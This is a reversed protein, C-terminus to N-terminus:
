LCLRQPNELLGRIEKALISAHYGDIVRHDLTANLALMKAVVPRGNEPLVADKVAGVMLVVSTRALPFFPAYGIDLGLMGVSTLLVSGFPDRPAGIPATNLNLSFQLFEILRLVWGMVLPPLMLAQAKTRQFDEDNGARIRAAGERLEEAIVSTSKEDAHRVVVGSLDAGGLGAGNDERPVMVHMFVDVDQRQVVRGWRVFANVDPHKRLVMAVARAVAHTVTVKVAGSRNQEELWALLPEARIQITGYTTPSRPAPWAVAAIRRFGSLSKIRHLRVNAM